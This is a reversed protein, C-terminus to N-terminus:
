PDMFVYAAGAKMVALLAVIMEVGRELMVAVLTEAGVGREQLYHGLQNARGNLEGYSLQEAEFLLAIAAATREVEAEFVGDRCLEATEGATENWEVLLQQEEVATLMGLESVRAEPQQMASELLQELHGAMRRVTEAEFLDRNYEFAGTI